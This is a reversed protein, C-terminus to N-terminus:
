ESAYKVVEEGYLEVLDGMSSMQSKIRADRRDKAVQKAKVAEAEDAEIQQARKVLADTLDARKLGQTVMGSFRMWGNAYTVYARTTTTPTAKRAQRHLTDSVQLLKFASARISERLTSIEALLEAETKDAM